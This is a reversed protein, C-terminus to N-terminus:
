RPTPDPFDIVHRFRSLLAADLHRKVSIALITPGHYGEMRQL